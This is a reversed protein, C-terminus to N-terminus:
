FVDFLLFQVMLAQSVLAKTQSLAACVKKVFEM